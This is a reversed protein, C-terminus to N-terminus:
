IFSVELLVVKKNFLLSEYFPMKNLLDQKRTNLYAADAVKNQNIFPKTQFTKLTDNKVLDLIENFSLVGEVEKNKAISAMM